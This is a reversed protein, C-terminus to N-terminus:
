ILETSEEEDPESKKLIFELTRIVVKCLKADNVWQSVDERYGSNEIKKLCIKLYKENAELEKVIWYRYNNKEVRSM